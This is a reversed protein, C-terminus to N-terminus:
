RHSLSSSFSFLRVLLDASWHVAALNIVEQVIDVTKGPRGRYKYSNQEVLGKVTGLYWEKYGEYSKGKEPFLAGIVLDWDAKHKAADDFTLMFGYGETLAAMDATYTQNFRKFRDNSASFVFDIGQITEVVKPIPVVVPPTLSYQSVIGLNTLNQATTAPTFFPFLSYVSNAPYHRPLHRMLLKPLAAGFAGNNPDRACDLYGWSTLNAAAAFSVGDDDIHFSLSLCSFPFFRM